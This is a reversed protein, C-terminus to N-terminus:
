VIDSIYLQCVHDFSNIKREFFNRELARLSASDTWNDYMKPITDNFKVMIEFVRNEYRLSTRPLPPVTTWASFFREDTALNTFRCFPAVPAAKSGRSKQSPPATAHRPLLVSVTSVSRMATRHRLLRSFSVGRCRLMPPFVSLVFKALPNATWAAAATTLSFPMIPPMRM